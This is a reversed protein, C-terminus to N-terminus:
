AADAHALVDGLVNLLTDIEAGSNYHVPGVRVAGGSHLIGLADAAEVAYNHGSWVFINHAALGRAIASSAKGEAVFSVTPVRRDMATKDTVGLVRVGPLAQLGSVLQLALEQEYAFLCELAAHVLRSRGSYCANAQMFDQAMTQGVWAFYDIAAATGAMGEHSQTGTEFCGPL